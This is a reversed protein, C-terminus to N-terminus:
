KAALAHHESELTTEAIANKPIRLYLIMVVACRGHSRSGKALDVEYVTHTTSQKM